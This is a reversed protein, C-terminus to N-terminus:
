RGKRRPAAKKRRAAEVSAEAWRRLQDLDELVDEPLQYYQMSAGGPGYPQFPGMGRAEFQPRNSDDVKFYLMDDDIMAFFLSSTYIGVGGFMPRSRIQSLVRSLQEMVYTRYSDSVSM